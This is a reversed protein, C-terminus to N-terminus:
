RGECEKGVARQLLEVDKGELKTSKPVIRELKELARKGDSSALAVCSDVQSIYGRVADGIGEFADGSDDLIKGAKGGNGGERKLVDGYEWGLYPNRQIGSEVREEDNEAYKDGRGAGVLAVRYVQSFL